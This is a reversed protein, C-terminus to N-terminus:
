WTQGMGPGRRVWQQDMTAWRQGVTPGCNAWQRGATPGNNTTTPGTASKTTSMNNVRRPGINTWQQGM